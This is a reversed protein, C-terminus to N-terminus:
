KEQGALIRNLQYQGYRQGWYKIEKPSAALLRQRTIDSPITPFITHSDRERAVALAEDVQAQTQAQANAIRAQEQEQRVASRLDVPSLGRLYEGHAQAAEAAFQDLEKQSAPAMGDLSHTEHYLRQNAICESLHNDRALQRFATNDAELEQSEIQPTRVLQWSIQNKLSPREALVHKFWTEDLQEGQDEHLWGAVIQRNAQNNVLTRGNIVIQCIQHFAGDISM